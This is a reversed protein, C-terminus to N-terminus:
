LIVEAVGGRRQDGCCALGHQALAVAHVGGFFLNAGPWCSTQTFQQQLPGNISDEFGAEINLLGNEYHIRPRSIADALPLAEDVLRLLVQLLASRIRNSGGSGFAVLEGGPLEALGPTMMSAM